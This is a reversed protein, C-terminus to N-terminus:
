VAAMIIKKLQLVPWIEEESVLSRLGSEQLGELAQNLHLTRWSVAEPKRPYFPIDEKAEAISPVKRGQLQYWM